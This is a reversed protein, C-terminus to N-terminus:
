VVLFFCWVTKVPISRCSSFYKLCHQISYEQVLLLTSWVTNVFINRFLVITSWVTKILISRFLLFFVGSLQSLFVGLCSSFYKLCHQISYEQVLLLTTWVNSVLFSKFLFFVGSFTSLFVLFTSWYRHRCTFYEM